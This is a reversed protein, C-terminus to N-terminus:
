RVATIQGGNKGKPINKKRYAAQIFAARQIKRQRDNKVQDSLMDEQVHVLAKMAKAIEKFSKRFHRDTGNTVQEDPELIRYGNGKENCLFMNHDVLLEDKLNEIASMYAFEFKKYEPINKPEEMDMMDRLDQHTFLKGYGEDNTVAVIVDLANKYPPYAKLSSENKGM